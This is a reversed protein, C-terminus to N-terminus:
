FGEVRLRVTGTFNAPQGRLPDSATEPNALLVGTGGDLSGAPIGDVLPVLWQIQATADIARQCTVNTIRTLGFLAAPIDGVAGGQNALTVEAEVFKGVLKGQRDGLEYSRIIKVASPPVVPM